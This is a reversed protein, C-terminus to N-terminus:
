GNDRVTSCSSSSPSSLDKESEELQSHENTEKREFSTSDTSEDLENIDKKFKATREAVCLSFYDRTARLRKETIATHEKPSWFIKPKTDTQIFGCLHRYSNNWNEFQHVLDSRVQAKSPPKEELDTSVDMLRQEDLTSELKQEVRSRKSTSRERTTEEVKFQQLTGMLMGFMRKNRNFGQKDNRQSELIAKRRQEIAVDQTDRIPYISVSSLKIPQRSESRSSDANSLSDQTNHASSVLLDNNSVLNECQDGFSKPHENDIPFEDTEM